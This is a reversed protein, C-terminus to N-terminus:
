GPLLVPRHKILTSVRPRFMDRRFKRCARSCDGFAHRSRLSACLTHPQTTTEIQAAANKGASKGHGQLAARTCQTEIACARAFHPGLNQARASKGYIEACCPGQSINVQLDVARAGIDEEEEMGDEAVNDVKEDEEEFDHEEEKEVDDDQAKDEEVEDEAYGHDDVDEAADDDDEEDDDEM